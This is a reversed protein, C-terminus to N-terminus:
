LYYVENNKIQEILKLFKKIYIKYPYIKWGFSDQIHSSDLSILHIKQESKSSSYASSYDFLKYKYTMFSAHLFEKELLDELKKGIALCNRAEFNNKVTFCIKEEQILRVYEDYHNNNM